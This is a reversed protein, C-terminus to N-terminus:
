RPNVTVVGDIATRDQGQANHVDVHYWRRYPDAIAAAPIFANVTIQASTKTLILMQAPNTSSLLLGTADDDCADDKLVLTVLTVGTLDDALYRRDITILLTEDNGATLTIPRNDTM